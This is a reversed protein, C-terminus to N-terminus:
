FILTGRWLRLELGPQPVGSPLKHVPHKIEDFPKKKNEKHANKKNGYTPLM